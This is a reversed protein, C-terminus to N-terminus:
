CIVHVQLKRNKKFDFICGFGLKFVVDGNTDGM